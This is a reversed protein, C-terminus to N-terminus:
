IISNKKWTFEHNTPNIFLMIMSISIILTIYAGIFWYTNNTLYLIQSLISDFTTIILIIFFVSSAIKKPENKISNENKYFWLFLFLFLFSIGGQEFALLVDRNLMSISVLLLHNFTLFIIGFKAEKYRLALVERSLDNWKKMLIGKKIGWLYEFLYGSFLLILGGFTLIQFPIFFMVYDENSIIYFLVIVIIIFPIGIGILPFYDIKKEIKGAFLLIILISVIYALFLPKFFRLEFLPKFFGIGYIFGIVIFFIELVKISDRIKGKFLIGTKM